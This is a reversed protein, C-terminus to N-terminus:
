KLILPKPRAFDYVGSLDELRRIWDAIIDEIRNFNKGARRINQGESFAKGNKDSGLAHRV